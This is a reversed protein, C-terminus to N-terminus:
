LKCAHVAHLCWVSLVSLELSVQLCVLCPPPLCSPLAGAYWELQALMSPLQKLMRHGPDTPTGDENFLDQIPM